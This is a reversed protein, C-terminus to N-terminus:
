HRPCLALCSESESLSEGRKVEADEMSTTHFAIKVKPDEDEDYDSFIRAITLVLVYVLREDSLASIGQPKIEYDSHWRM